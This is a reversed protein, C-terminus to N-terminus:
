GASRSRPPEPTHYIATLWIDLLVDVVDDEAIAQDEGAFTGHLTRENMSTLAIALDRAPPGPPAVGRERENAILEACHRV